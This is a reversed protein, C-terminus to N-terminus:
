KGFKAFASDGEAAFEDRWRRLLGEGVDLSKAVEGVSRGPLRVSGVNFEGSVEMASAREREEDQVRSAQRSSRLVPPLGVSGRVDQERRESNPLFECDSEFCVHGGKEIVLGWSRRQVQFGLSIITSRHM